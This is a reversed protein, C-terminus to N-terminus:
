RRIDTLLSNKEDYGDRRTSWINVPHDLTTTTDVPRIIATM